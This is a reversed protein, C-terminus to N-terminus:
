CANGTVKKNIQSIALACMRMERELVDVVERKIKM